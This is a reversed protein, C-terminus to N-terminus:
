AKGKVMDGVKFAAGWSDLMLYYTEGCDDSDMNDDIYDAVADGYSERLNAITELYEKESVNDSVLHNFLNILGVTDVATAAM